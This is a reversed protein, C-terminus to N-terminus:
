QDLFCYVLRCFRGYVTALWSTLYLLYHNGFCFVLCFDYTCYKFYSLVLNAWPWYHSTDGFSGISPALIWTWRAGQCKLVRRTYFAHNFGTFLEIM